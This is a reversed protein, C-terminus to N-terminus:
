GGTAPGRVRREVFYTQHHPYGPEFRQAEAEASLRDEFTAVDFRTGHADQRVVVWSQAGIDVMPLDDPHSDGDPRRQRGPGNAHEAAPQTAEARRRRWWPARRGGPWRWPVPAGFSEGEVIGVVLVSAAIGAGLIV